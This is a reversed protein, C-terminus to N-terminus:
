SKEASLCNHGSGATPRPALRGTGLSVSESLFTRHKGLGPGSQDRRKWHKSQSNSSRWHLDIDLPSCCTQLPQSLSPPPPPSFPSPIVFTVAPQMFNPCCAVPCSEMYHITCKPPCKSRTSKPTTRRENVPFSYTM